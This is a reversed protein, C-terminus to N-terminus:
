GLNPNDIYDKINSIKDNYQDLNPDPEVINIVTKDASLKIKKTLNDLAENKMNTLDPM